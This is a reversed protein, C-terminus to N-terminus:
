QVYMINDIIISMLLCSLLCFFSTFIWLCEILSAGLRECLGTYMELLTYMQSVFLGGEETTATTNVSRVNINNDQTCLPDGDGPAQGQISGLKFMLELWLVVFCFM